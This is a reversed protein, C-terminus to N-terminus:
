PWLYWAAAALGLWMLGQALFRAPHRIVLSYFSLAALVTMALFVFTTSVLPRFEHSLRPYEDGLLLFVLLVMALSVTIALCSGLLIGTIM